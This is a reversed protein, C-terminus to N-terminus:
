RADRRQARRVRAAFPVENALEPFRAELREAREALLDADIVALAKAAALRVDASDDELADACPEAATDPRWTWLATFAARRVEDDRDRASSLVRESWADCDARHRVPLAVTALVSADRLKAPIATWGAALADAVSLGPLEAVYRLAEWSANGSRLLGCVVDDIARSELATAAEIARRRSRDDNARAVIVADVRASARVGYQQGLAVLAELGQSVLFDDDSAAQAVATGPPAFPQPPV